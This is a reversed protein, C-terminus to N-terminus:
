INWLRYLVVFSSFLEYYVVSVRQATSEWQPALRDFFMQRHKDLEDRLSQIVQDSSKRQATSHGFPSSSSSASASASASPDAATRGFHSRRDRFGSPPWAFTQDSALDEEAGPDRHFM